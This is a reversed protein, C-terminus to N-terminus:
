QGLLTLLQGGDFGENVQHEGLITEVTELRESGAALFGLGSSGLGLLALRRGVNSANCCVATVVKSLM